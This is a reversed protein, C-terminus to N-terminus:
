EPEVVNKPRTILYLIGIGLLIIGVIFLEQRQAHGILLGCVGIGGLPVVFPVEFTGKPEDRRFKLVILAANVVVFAGLLLVATAKALGAIEGSLALTLVIAMLAAIAVHPTRRAHHVRGLVRPLLGQRAMGYVLRSGMVYNLLATNTIAFIGVATFLSPPFWPAARRVVEVLPGPSAALEAHPVVSIATIGVAIYIMTVIGMALIMARPLNRRVDKVEEAVNLMDEFGIFSFFTLVAGQLILTSTLGDPSAAPIELYDVGGWYPLGIAIIFVLGGVEITTCVINLWTSERMGWFNVLTLVLIFGVILMEPAVRGFLEGFYGAFARSATAMSTLGSAMVALGLVYSLLPRRFARQTVYAAGAARPYRSGLCAYSMGTLLAATMSALFAAWIANGMIGAAKGVLAYIGSGLMDGVGYIALSWLGMTRVLGPAGTRQEDGSVCCPRDDM